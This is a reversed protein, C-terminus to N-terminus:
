SPPGPCVSGIAAGIFMRVQEAQKRTVLVPDPTPIHLSLTGDPFTEIVFLEDVGETVAWRGM